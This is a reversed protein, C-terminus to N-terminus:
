EFREDFGADSEIGFERLLERQCNEMGLGNQVVPSEDNVVVAHHRRGANKGKGLALIKIAVEAEAVASGESQALFGIGDGNDNGLFCALNGNAVVANKFAIQAHILEAAPEALQKKVMFMILSITVFSQLGFTVQRSRAHASHYRMLLFTSFFGRRSSCLAGGEFIQCAWSIVACRLSKPVSPTRPTAFISGTVASVARLSPRAAACTKLVAHPVRM